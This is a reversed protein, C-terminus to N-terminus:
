RGEPIRLRAGQFLELRRERVHAQWRRSRIEYGPGDAALADDSRLVDDAAAYTATASTARDGAGTTVLVGGELTVTQGGVEGEGSGADVHLGDRGVQPSAPVDVALSRGELRGSDRLYSVVSATGIGNLGESGYQRLVVEHLEIAPPGQKPGPRLDECGSLAALLAGASALRRLLYAKRRGALMNCLVTADASFLTFACM